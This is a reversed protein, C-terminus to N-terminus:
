LGKIAEELEEPKAFWKTEVVQNESIKLWALQKDQRPWDQTLNGDRDLLIQYPLKRMKPMAFMKSILAPMKSIDAVFALNLKSLDTVKLKEFTDRAMKYGEMESAFLLVRTSEPIVQVKEHQDKLEIKLNLDSAFLSNTSIMVLFFVLIKM